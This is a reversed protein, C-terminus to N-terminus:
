QVNVSSDTQFSLLEGNKETIIEIEYDGVVVDELQIYLTFGQDLEEENDDEKVAFAEFIYVENGSSLKIYIPAGIDTHEVDIGGWIKIYREFNEQGFSIKKSSASRPTDELIRIPAPMVPAHSQLWLINREVIEVICDDTKQEQLADIRYPLNSAFYANQYEEALFPLIAGMFSDTFMLLSGEGSKNETEIEPIRSTETGVTTYGFGKKPLYLRETAKKPSVLLPYLMKNLDGEIPGKKVWKEKGYQRHDKQLLNLIADSAIEAGFSNWHSDGKYYLLKDKNSFLDVASVHNIGQIKMEEEVRQLNSEGTGKIYYYPMYEPYITNKNPAIFVSFTSGMKNAYESMLQMTKVVNKVDRESAKNEGTYDTLTGKFFLWGDRGVIVNNVSSTKFIRSYVFANFSILEQRGAFSESFVTGVEDMIHFNFKGDETKLGQLAATDKIETSEPQVYAILGYLPFACIIFFLLVYFVHFYKKKM